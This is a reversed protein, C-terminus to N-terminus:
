SNQYEQAVRFSAMEEYLALFESCVVEGSFSDSALRRGARGMAARLEPDAILRLVGDAIADSNGRPVYLAHVNERLYSEAFRTRTTIVPLGCGLAEAVVM